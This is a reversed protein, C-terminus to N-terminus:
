PQWPESFHKETRNPKLKKHRNETIETGNFCSYVTQMECGLCKSM